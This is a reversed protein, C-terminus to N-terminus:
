ERGNGADAVHGGLQEVLGSEFRGLLQGRGVLLRHRLDLADPRLSDTPDERRSPRVELLLARLLCSEGRRRCRCGEGRRRLGRGDVRLDLGDRVLHQDRLLPPFSCLGIGAPALVSTGDHRPNGGYRGGCAPPMWTSRTAFTRSASRGRATQARPTLRRRGLTGSTEPYRTARREGTGRAGVTM